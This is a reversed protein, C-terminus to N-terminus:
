LERYASLGLRNVKHHNQEQDPELNPRESVPSIGKSVFALERGKPIPVYETDTFNAVCLQV